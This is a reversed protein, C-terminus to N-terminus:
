LFRPPISDAFPFYRFYPKAEQMIRLMSSRDMLREFYARLNELGPPPPQVTMAYFLAPAAACDAISFSPGTAWTKGAMQRDFAAYAMELTAREKTLDGSAGHLRDGVIRQMPVQLYTDCFRDWWRAQLADEWERPILPREGPFFHDLYEIIISTEAVDRKRTHDRIVPFKGIPSVALLEGRDQANGLDIVRREFATGNEYLAALVKHCFSSLPHYYLTLSV